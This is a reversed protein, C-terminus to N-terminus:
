LTRVREEQLDRGIQRGGADLVLWTRVKRRRLPTEREIVPYNFRDMRLEAIPKKTTNGGTRGNPQPRDSEERTLTRSTELFLLPEFQRYGSVTQQQLPPHLESVLLRQAQHLEADPRDDVVQPVDAADVADLRLQELADKRVARLLLEGADLITGLYGIFNLPIKKRITGLQTDQDNSKSTQNSYLRSAKKEESCISRLGM